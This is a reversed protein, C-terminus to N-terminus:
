TMISLIGENIVFRGTGWFKLQITLDNSYGLNWYVLRNKRKGLSNLQQGYSNGFSRGGDISISLDIRAIDESEGQELIFTLNNAIFPSADPMRVPPLIRIRPVEEGDNTTYKSNLEYLNGGKLSIFYYTNNFYVARKAIHYNMDKDCLTFFMNNSFDYTLTLNDKPDTFTLQYFLHGDQKFLFGYASEPNVLQALQFNIGDTSIQQINGGSSYMIALGSKENSGLWVIFEEGAAITAANLCGYDINFSSSRQYPFLQYGVDTWSETVTKGFVFLQNGRGPVRVCAMVTDPKTQFTGVNAPAAPFGNDITISFTAGNGAGGTVTHAGTSFGKGTANVSVGNIVGGASVGTVKLTGGIGQSVTLIDNLAYGTGGSVITATSIALMTNLVSLRWKPQSVIPSIFYGDQFSVYGPVFDLSLKEFANTEYDLIYITKKDCIAIQKADNEDIFVDGSSTEIDAVKSFSMYKDVRYVSSDIVVILEGFRTSNFIGRGNGIAEINITKKYGAYPVLWGDSVMMNYTQELSIKPYRGFKTSGVIKLPIPQLHPARQKM